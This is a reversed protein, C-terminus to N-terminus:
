REFGKNSQKNISIIGRPTSSKKHNSIPKIVQKKDAVESHISNENGISIVNDTFYSVDNKPFLGFPPSKTLDGKYSAVGVIGEKSRYSDPYLLQIDDEKIGKHQLASVVTDIHGLMYVNCNSLEINSLSDEIQKQSVGHDIHALYHKGKEQNVVVLAACTFLGATALPVDFNAVKYCGQPVYIGKDPGYYNNLNDTYYDDYDDQDGTLFNDEFDQEDDFIM